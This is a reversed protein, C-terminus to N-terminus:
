INREILEEEESDEDSTYNLLPDETEVRRYSVHRLFRKKSVEKRPLPALRPINALNKLFFFIGVFLAVGSVTSFCIVFIAGNSLKSVNTRAPNTILDAIWLDSLLATQNNANHGRGGYLYLKNNYTWFTPAYRPGPLYEISSKGRPGYLAHREGEKFGGEFAWSNTKVNFKWIDSLLKDRHFLINIKQNDLGEGGFMWLNGNLDTWTAALKRAGPLNLKSEKGFEGVYSRGTHGEANSINTWKGESECYKWMENTLGIGLNNNSDINDLSNGSFMYLCDDKGIWSASGHRKGPIHKSDIKKWILNSLSLMWFDDLVQKKKNNGGYIYMKDYTCWTIAESRNPPRIPLDRSLWDNESVNFIWTDNYFENNNNEGGFIVVTKDTTGCCSYLRREKPM